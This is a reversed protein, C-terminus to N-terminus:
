EFLENISVVKCNEMNLEECLAKVKEVHELLQEEDYIVVTYLKGKYHRLSFLYVELREYDMKDGGCLYYRDDESGVVSIVIFARQPNYYDDRHDETKKSIKDAVPLYYVSDDTKRLTVSNSTIKCEGIIKNIESISPSGLKEYTLKLSKRFFKNKSSKWDAYSSLSRKEHRFGCFLARMKVPFSDIKLWRNWHKIEYEFSFNKGPEISVLNPMDDFCYYSEFRNFQKKFQKDDLSLSKGHFTVFEINQHLKLRNPIFVINENSINTIKMVFRIPRHYFVDINEPIIEMKLKQSNTQKEQAVMFISSGVLVTLLILISTPRSIINM